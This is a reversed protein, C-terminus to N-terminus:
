GPDVGDALLVRSIRESAQGDWFPPAATVPESTRHNVCARWVADPDTGALVNTGATVTVPRETSRRVTICPVKLITTEEQVGGSDTIVVAANSICCLFDLYGLPRTLVVGASVLREDLGFSRLKSQTRPHLPWLLPLRRAARCIVAVLSALREEEDVNSPRHLTVVGFGRASLDFEAPKDRLMALKRHALLTDIMVNGVFHIKEEAIGERLLNRNASEETTFLWTALQDTLVRNIEEPMNRDFSRLGAEVHAIRIGKKAAVLSAALTSNVDGVVVVMDVGGLEDVFRELRIMVEGTQVGHSGSGVGLNADPPVMGLDDFLVQSMEPHYHQGTHVLVQQLARGRAASRREMAKMVPAVKMFNPRAGAVYLINM